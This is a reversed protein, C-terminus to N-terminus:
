PRFFGLGQLTAQPTANLGNVVEQAEGASGVFDCWKFEIRGDAQTNRFEYIRSGDTWFRVEGPPPMTAGAGEFQVRDLPLLFAWTIQSLRQPCGLGVRPLGGFPVALEEDEPGGPMVPPIPLQVGPPPGSVDSCSLGLSELFRCEDFARTRFRWNPHRWSSRFRRFDVGYQRM